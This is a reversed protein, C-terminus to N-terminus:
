KKVQLTTEFYLYILKAEPKWIKLSFFANFVLLM